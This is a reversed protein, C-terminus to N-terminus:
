AGAGTRALMGECTRVLVRAAAVADPDSMPNEARRQWRALQHQAARRIEGPEATGDLGLRDAPANGEMGLLQEMADLEADAVPFSGARLATALQIEAFEHANTLIREVEHALWADGERELERGLPEALLLASRAKLVDRRAGFHRLLEAQLRPLGSHESLRHALDSASVVERAAIWGVALRIGFLGLRDLLAWRAERDGVDAAAFRDVSLLAADRADPELGAVTALLAHDRERLSGGAQGILAAVPLATAALRRLKPDTAYRRAIREASEMADLQGAGVEDARALVVITTVPTARSVRTDGFAELFEVDTAHMHRMLYVVADAATPNDDDGLLFGETRASLDTSSSGIGPTDILTMASLASSPWSVRVDEIEAPPRGGLEFSLGRETREFPVSRASGDHFRVTVGRSIGEEYWTVVRTCEGADTAALEEGVLANLLTSKGAKLQGAIAVRLPEDLRSRAAEIVARRPDGDLRDIADVLLRRVEVFLESRETM